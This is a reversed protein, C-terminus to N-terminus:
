GRNRSGEGAPPTRGRIDAILCSRLKSCLDQLVVFDQFRDWPKKSRAPMGFEWEAPDCPPLQERYERIREHEVALADAPFEPVNLEPATSAATLARALDLYAGLSGESLLLGGHRFYWASLFHGMRTCAASDFRSPSSETEGPSGHAPGPFYISLLSTARVLKPYADLRKEHVAQDLQGVRTWPAVLLSTVAGVLVGGLGIRTAALLPPGIM